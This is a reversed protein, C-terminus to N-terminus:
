IRAYLYNETFSLFSCIDKFLYILLFPDNVIRFSAASLISFQYESLLKQTNASLLCEFLFLVDKVSTRKKNIKITIRSPSSGEVWHNFAM